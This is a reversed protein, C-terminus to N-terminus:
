YVCSVCCHLCHAHPLQFMLSSLFTEMILFVAVLETSSRHKRNNTKSVLYLSVSITAAHMPGSLPQVLYSEPVPLLPWIIWGQARLLRYNIVVQFSYISKELSDCQPFLGDKLFNRHGTISACGACICRARMLLNKRERKRNLVM